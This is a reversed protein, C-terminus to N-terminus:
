EPQGAPFDLAYSKELLTFFRFKQWTYMEFKGQYFTLIAERFCCKLINYIHFFNPFM